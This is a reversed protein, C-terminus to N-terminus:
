DCHCSQRIAELLAEPALVVYFAEQEDDLTGIRLSISNASLDQVQMLLPEVLGEGAPGQLRMLPILGEKLASEVWETIKESSAM